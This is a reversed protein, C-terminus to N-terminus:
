KEKFKRELCLKDTGHLFVSFAALLLGIDRVAIDNYGISFLVGILHLSAFIAAIRTFIGLLLLIGVITNFIGTMFFFTAGTLPLNSVFPPLWALWKEPTLMQDLGLLFFVIGVGYRVIVPAYEKYKEIM